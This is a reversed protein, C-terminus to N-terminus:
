CSCTTGERRPSEGQLFVHTHGDIMGPLVTAGSLDIVKAGAPAAGTGVSEIRNGRIVIVQNTKASGSVGDILTGARIVTVPPPPAPEAAAGIRCVLSLSLVWARSSSM